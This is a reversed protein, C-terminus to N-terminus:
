QTAPSFEMQCGVTEVVCVRTPDITKLVVYHPGFKQTGMVPDLSYAQQAARWLENAFGASNIDLGATTTM